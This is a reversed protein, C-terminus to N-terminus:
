DHEEGPEDGEEVQGIRPPLPLLYLPNYVSGDRRIEFHVHFTTARGSRGVTAIPDGAAVWTGPQVLNEENHAYVTVFGGEHDIKVVRGYRAEVDSAAVVGSAAAFIATGRDAKIDIGHHWGARRRGFPSTVFGEVPWTFAPTVDLFDPVALVLGRPGCCSRAAPAAVALAARRRHVPMAQVPPVVLRQGLRLIVREGALRNAAVLAAVTVGYRLAIAGLTDGRAVVHVRAHQPAAPAPRPDAGPAGAAALVLAAAALCRARLRRQSV